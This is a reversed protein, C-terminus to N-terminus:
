AYVATKKFLDVLLFINVQLHVDTSWLFLAKQAVNKFQSEEFLRIEIKKKSSDQFQSTHCCIRIKKPSPLDQKRDRSNNLINYSM